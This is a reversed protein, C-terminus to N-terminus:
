QPMPLSGTRVDNGDALIIRGYRRVYSECRDEFSLESVLYVMPDVLGNRGRNRIFEVEDRLSRLSSRLSAAVDVQPLPGGRVSGTKTSLGQSARALDNYRQRVEALWDSPRRKWLM